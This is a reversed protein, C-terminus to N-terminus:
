RKISIIHESDPLIMGLKGKTEQEVRSNNVLTSHQIQLRGWDADLNQKNELLAQLEIFKNRTKHQLYIYDVVIVLNVLTLTLTLILNKFKM